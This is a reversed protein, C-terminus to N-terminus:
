NHPIYLSCLERTFLYIENSDEHVCYFHQIYKRIIHFMKFRLSETITDNNRLYQYFCELIDLVSLGKNFCENCIRCAGLLDNEQCYKLYNDFTFSSMSSCLDDLVNIKSIDETFSLIKCKYLISFLSRFSNDCWKTIEKIQKTTLDMQSSKCIQKAAKQLEQISPRELRVINFRSQINDLVNLQSKCSIIINVKHSYTDIFHRLVQQSQEPVLDIDDIVITRKRGMVDLACKCFDKLDNRFYQIGHEMVSKIRLVYESEQTKLVEPTYYKELITDIMSTKGTGCDGVILINLMNIEFVTDIIDKYKQIGCYDYINEPPSINLLSKTM